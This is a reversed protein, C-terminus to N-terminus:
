IDLLTFSYGEPGLTFQGFPDDSDYPYVLIVDPPCYCLSFGNSDAWVIIQAETYM